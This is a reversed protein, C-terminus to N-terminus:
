ERRVGLILPIFHLLISYSPILFTSKQQHAAHFPLANLNRGYVPQGPGMSGLLMPNGVQMEPKFYTTYNPNEPDEWRLKIHAVHQEPKYKYWGDTKL